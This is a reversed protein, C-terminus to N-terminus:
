LPKLRGIERELKHIEDLRDEAKKNMEIQNTFADKFVGILVFQLAFIFVIAPIAIGALVWFALKWVFAKMKLTKIQEDRPDISDSM